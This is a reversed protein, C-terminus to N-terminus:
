SDIWINFCTSNHYVGGCRDTNGCVAQHLNKSDGKYLSLWFGGNGTHTIVHKCKSGIILSSFYNILHNMKLNSELKHFMSRHPDIPLIQCEEIYFVNSLKLRAEELFEVEDTQIFFVTNEDGISKAKDIFFDYSGIPTEKLKDAGRYLIICTNEYDIKYKEEFLLIKKMVEDGPMFYKKIFPYVDDFLIDKYFGHAPYTGEVKQEVDIIPLDLVLREKDYEFSFYDNENYIVKTVDENDDNMNIKCLGFQKRRIVSSPLKKCDNYFIMIDQLAITASSFPGSTHEIHLIDNEYKSPTYTRIGGNLEKTIFKM